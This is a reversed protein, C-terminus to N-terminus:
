HEETSLSEDVVLTREDDDFAVTVAVEWPDTSRVVTHRDTAAFELEWIPTRTVDLGHDLCFSM